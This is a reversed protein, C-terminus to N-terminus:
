QIIRVVIAAELNAVSMIYYGASKVVDEIIELFDSDSTKSVVKIFENIRERYM